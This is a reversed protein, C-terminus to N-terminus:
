SRKNRLERAQRALEAREKPDSSAAMRERVTELDEDTNVAPDRVIPTKIGAAAALRVVETKVRAEFDKGSNAIADNANALQGKLEAIQTEKALIAAAHASTLEETTSDTKGLKSKLEAIEADKAEIEKSTFFAALKQFITKAEEETPLNDQNVVPASPTLAAPPNKFKSIDFKAAMKLDGTIEDVFGFEKAEKATMWTEADMMERITKKSLGTKGSYAAEITSQIKDMVDAQKRFEDADGQMGASVNHIMMLGNGAMRVPTGAIAVVSAM